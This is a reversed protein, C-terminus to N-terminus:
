RGTQPVSAHRGLELLGGNVEGALEPGQDAIHLLKPVGVPESRGPPAGCLESFYRGLSRLRETGTIPIAPWLSRSLGDDFIVRLCGDGPTEAASCLRFRRIM